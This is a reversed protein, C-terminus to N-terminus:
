QYLCSPNINWIGTFLFGDYDKIIIRLRAVIVLYPLKTFYTQLQASILLLDNFFFKYVASKKYGYRM